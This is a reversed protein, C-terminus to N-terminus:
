DWETVKEGAANLLTSPAERFVMEDPKLQFKGAGSFHEPFSTAVAAHAGQNLFDDTLFFADAVASAQLNKLFSSATGPVKAKKAVTWAVLRRFLKPLLVPGKDAAANPVGGRRFTLKQNLTGITGTYKKWLLSTSKAASAAGLLTQIEDNSMSTYFGPFAWGNRALWQNVVLEEGDLTVRIDGVFRGYTDFVDNPKEVFTAATCALEGEGGQTLLSRLAVTATEGLPQRFDENIENYRKRLAASVGSGGKLPAATYHLEPADIGQLRVTMKGANNLVTRTGSRGKVKAGDFVHTQRIAGGDERVQFGQVNVLIKTTDADSTGEPWFQRTDLTGNVILEVM